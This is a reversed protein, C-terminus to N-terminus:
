VIGATDSPAFRRGAPRVVSARGQRTRANAAGRGDLDGGIRLKGAALDRVIRESADRRSQILDTSAGDDCLEAHVIRAVALQLFGPVDPLPLTYYARLWADVRDSVEKIASAVRAADIGGPADPDPAAVLLAASGVIEELAAPTLYTTAM